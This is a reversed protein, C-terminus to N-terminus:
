RDSSSPGFIRGILRFWGILGVSEGVSGRVLGGVWRDVSVSPDVLVLGTVVVVM